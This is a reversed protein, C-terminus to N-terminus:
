TGPIHKLTLDRGDIQMILKAMDNMSVMEESGLNLPDRCDSKM